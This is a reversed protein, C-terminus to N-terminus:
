VAPRGRRRWQRDRVAGGPSGALRGAGAQVHRQQCREPGRREPRGLGVGRAARESVNLHISM